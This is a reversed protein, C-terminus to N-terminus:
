PPAGAINTLVSSSSMPDFSLLVLLAVQSLAVAFLILKASNSLETKSAVDDAPTVSKGDNGDFRRRSQMLLKNKKNEEEDSKNNMGPEVTEEDQEINWGLFQKAAAIDEERKTADNPAAIRVGPIVTRLELEDKLASEYAEVAKKVKAGNENRNSESENNSFTSSDLQESRVIRLMKLAEERRNAADSPCLFSTCKTYFEISLLLNYKQLL